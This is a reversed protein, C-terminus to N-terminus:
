STLPVSHKAFIAEADKQRAAREDDTEGVAHGMANTLAVLAPAVDPAQVKGKSIAGVILQIAQAILVAFIPSM